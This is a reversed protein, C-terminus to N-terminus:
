AITFRAPLFTFLIPVLLKEAAADNDEVTNQLQLIESRKKSLAALLEEERALAAAEPREQLFCLFSPLCSVIPMSARAM